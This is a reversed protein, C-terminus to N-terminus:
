RRHAVAMVIALLTVAALMVTVYLWGRSRAVPPLEPEAEVALPPPPAPAPLPTLEPDIPSAPLTAPRTEVRASVSAPARTEVRASVSAPARTEVRASVSAPAPVPAPPQAPLEGRAFAARHEVSCFYVFSGDVLAVASARLPDLEKGCIPDRVM